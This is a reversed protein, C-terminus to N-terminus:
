FLVHLKISTLLSRKLTEGTYTCQLLLDSYKSSIDNYRISTLPLTFKGRSDFQFYNLKNWIVM